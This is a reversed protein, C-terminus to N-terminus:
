SENKPEWKKGAGWNGLELDAEMPIILDIGFEDILKPRRMISRVKPLIEEICDNRVVGLLADHHEGVLKFKNRDVTEHIEVLAMAKHDGIYGQVPSNIGQRECEKSVKWDTSHIGPLRRKRGTMSKVYGDLKVLKKQREHWVPLGRYLSFYTSRAKEAESMTPEFGYKIKCTEIFKKEYMGYIFGFNVAKARKRGEKWGKWIGVCKEHGAELLWEVAVPLSLKKGSLKEATDIAPKVYEGAAGALLVSLLTRWHVDINNKFLHMLEPDQSLMGAIRMEATALDGQVFTWGSPATVLNRITGDRPVSHIASSYRGTVTGHIKYSVYLKDGVMREKWGEIYTSLFKALERYRILMDVVKHKGKLDLIAQESTSEAGKETLLTCELGLDHYILQAVQAPSNWNIRKGALRNLRQETLNLEARTNEEVEVMRKLDITMGVQEIEELARAAPMVLRYFLRRIEPDEKLRKAFLLSLQLTYFGDSAGYKVYKLRNEPLKLLELDGQKLKTPIDYEPADLENRAMSKLDHSDNEDLTHHALMTDFSLRFRRSYKTMLWINDFKANQGSTWKGEALDFLINMIMRAAVPRHLLFSGPIDFPLVWAKHRLGVIILKIESGPLQAFLGSTELDFSFVDTEKFDNIFRELNKATVEEWEVEITNSKGETARKLKKLDAKFAPLKSPDRLCYAPDFIPIGTYAHEGQKMPILQGHFETVKPKKLVAKSSPTGFTAVFKPQITGIEQDLYKRCAKIEDPNPPRNDPPRCKVLNTLYVSGLHSSKLEQKLLQSPRGIFPKGRRDEETGPAGGVAIVTADEPGEGWLCITHATKWLGCDRCEPNRPM